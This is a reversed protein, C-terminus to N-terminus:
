PAVSLLSGPLRGRSALYLNDFVSLGGFLLSIQYTRRLGRRAREYPPLATVDEGFFYVSGKKTTIDGNILNLLTTKGAGNVGLMARREGADVTLHIDTLVTLAGFSLSVGDLRCLM